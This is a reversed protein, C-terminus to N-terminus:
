DKARVLKMIKYNDDTYVMTFEENGRGSQVGM